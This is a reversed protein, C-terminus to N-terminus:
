SFHLYGNKTPQFPGSEDFCSVETGEVITGVRELRVDLSDAIKKLKPVVDPNATICLEYDDGGSLAMERSMSQSFTRLADSLPLNEAQLKAGVGSARCIHGLDALLGDSIDCAATILSTASQAFKLRPEPYWYRGALYDLVQANEINKEALHGAADGLTGTVLVADGVEAGSRSLWRDEVVGMMQVSITLTGKTTDGGVLDIQWLDAESILGESFAQLWDEDIGPLTLALTFWRPEAGMAALDSLNTRICKAAIKEAPAHKEFHVGEVLTDVTIVLKESEEMSLVAADDGVGLCVGAGKAPSKFYRRILDFEDM